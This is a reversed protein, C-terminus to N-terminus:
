KGIVKGKLNNIARGKQERKQPSLKKIENIMMSIEADREHELLNLM